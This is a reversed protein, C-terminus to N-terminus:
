CHGQWKHMLIQTGVGFGLYFALHLPIYQFGASFFYLCASGIKFLKLYIAELSCFSLNDELGGGGVCVCVCVAVTSELRSV